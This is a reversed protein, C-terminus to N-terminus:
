IVSVSGAALPCALAMSPLHQGPHGSLASVGVDLTLLPPEEIFKGGISTIGDLNEVQVQHASSQSQSTHLRTWFYHSFQTLLDSYM